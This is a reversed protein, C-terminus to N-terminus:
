FVESPPYMIAPIVEESPAPPDSAQNILTSLLPLWVHFLVNPPFKSSLAFETWFVESSPYMITPVVEEYPAPPDSAQNIFTSLPPLWDHFLVNPPVKSSLAFETWCVASPPYM